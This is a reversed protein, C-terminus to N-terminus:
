VNRSLKRDGMMLFRPAEGGGEGGRILDIEVVLAVGSAPEGADCEDLAHEGREQTPDGVPDLSLVLLAEVGQTEHNRATRGLEPVDETEFYSLLGNVPPQIFQMSDAGGYPDALKDRLGGPDSPEVV